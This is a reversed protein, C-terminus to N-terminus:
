LNGRKKQELEAVYGVLENTFENLRDKLIKKFLWNAGKDFTVKQYYKVIVVGDTSFLRYEAYSRTIKPFLNSNQYSRLM